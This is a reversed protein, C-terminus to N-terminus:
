GRRRDGIVGPFGYGGAPGRVDVSPAVNPNRGGGFGPPPAMSQRATWNPYAIDYGVQRGSAAAKAVERAYEENARRGESMPPLILGGHNEYHRVLLLAVVERNRMIDRMRAHHHLHPNTIAYVLLHVMAPHDDFDSVVAALFEATMIEPQVDDGPGAHALMFNLDEDIVRRIGHETIARSYQVALDIVPQFNFNPKRPTPYYQRLLSLLQEGQWRQAPTREEEDQQQRNTGRPTSM